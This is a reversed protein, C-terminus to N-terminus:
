KWFIQIHRQPDEHALGVYQGTSQILQVMYQKLEFHGTIEPKVIAQTMNALNPRAAEIVAREQNGAMVTPQPQVQIDLERETRNRAEREKRTRHITREIEPDFPFLNNTSRSRRM